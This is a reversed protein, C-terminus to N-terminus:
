YDETPESRKQKSSKAFKAGIIILFISIALFLLFGIITGLFYGIENASSNLNAFAVLIQPFSSILTAFSLFSGIIILLIGFVKKM